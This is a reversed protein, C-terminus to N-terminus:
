VTSPQQPLKKTAAATVKRNWGFALGKRFLGKLTKIRYGWSSPSWSGNDALWGEVWSRFRTRNHDSRDKELCTLLRM